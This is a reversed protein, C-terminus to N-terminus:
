YNKRFLNFTSTGPIERDSCVFELIAKADELELGKVDILFHNIGAKMLDDIHGSAAYPNDSYIVTGEKGTEVTFGESRRSRVSKVGEGTKLPSILLPVNVYVPVIGLGKLYKGEEGINKLTSELPLVFRSAGLKHLAICSATNATYLYYDSVIEVKEHVRAEKFVKFWGIDPVFYKRFGSSVLKKLAGRYFTLNQDPQVPPLRFYVRRRDLPTLKQSNRVLNKTLDLIMYDVDKDLTNGVELRDTALYLVFSKKEERGGKVRLTSIISVRREKLSIHLGKDFGRSAKEMARKMDEISVNAEGRSSVEIKGVPIDGRCSDLLVKGAWEEDPWEEGSGGSVRFTFSKRFEGMYGTIRIRDGEVELKFSVGVRVVEENSENASGAWRRRDEGSHVAFLSDGKRVTFPVKFWRKGERVQTATLTFGTGKGDLLSQIRLREGKNVRHTGEVFVYPTRVEAIKGLFDGVSGGEESSVTVGEREGSFLGETQERGTVRSLIERGEEVGEEEMGRIVGELVKRYGRVVEYVYGASRLRGEIKLARVGLKMLEPIRDVLLLDRASFLPKEGGKEDKYVRRCPQVCEGRNGSRGGLYSSFFCKGSYSFCLAGHVFVEVDIPSRRITEKLHPYELHRELIARKVGLEGLVHLMRSNVCGMMTSAHIDTDPFNSRLIEIVGLDAVILADPNFLIARSVLDIFDGLEKEQVLSNMPIYVKVGREHAYPILGALDPLSFNDARMRANFRSLGLYVADAGGEISAFFTERNGAPALIEPRDLNGREMSSRIIKESPGSKNKESHAKKRM